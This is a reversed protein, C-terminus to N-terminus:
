IPSSEEMKPVQFEQHFTGTTKKPPSVFPNWGQSGAKLSPSHVDGPLPVPGQTTTPFGKPLDENDLATHIWRFSTFENVKPLM